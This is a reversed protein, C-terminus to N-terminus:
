GTLGSLLATLLRQDREVEVPYAARVQDLGLQHINLLREIVRSRARNSLLRLLIDAPRDLVDELTSVDSSNKLQTRDIYDDILPQLDEILEERATADDWHWALAGLLTQVTGIHWDRGYGVGVAILLRFLEPTAASCPNDEITAIVASRIDHSTSTAFRDVLGQLEKFTRGADGM